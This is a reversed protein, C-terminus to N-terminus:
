RIIRNPQGSMQSCDCTAEDADSGGGNPDGNCIGDIFGQNFEKTHFAFGMIM